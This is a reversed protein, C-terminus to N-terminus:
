LPAGGPGLKLIRRSLPGLFPYEAWEGHGAKVGYVVAMVIMAFWTGMWDLWLMPMFMFAGPPSPGHRTAQAFIMTMVAAGFWLFVGIGMLLLFVM